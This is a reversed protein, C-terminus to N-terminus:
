SEPQKQSRRKALFESTRKTTLRRELDRDASPKGMIEQFASARGRNRDIQDQVIQEAQALTDHGGVNVTSSQQVLRAETESMKYDQELERARQESNIVEEKVQVLMARASADTAGYRKLNEDLVNIRNQVALLQEGLQCKQQDDDPVGESDLLDLKQELLEAETMKRSKERTAAAILAAYDGANQVGRGLEAAKQRLSGRYNEISHRAKYSDGAAGFVNLLTWVFKGPLSSPFAYGFLLLSVILVGIVYIM